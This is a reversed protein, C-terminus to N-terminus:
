RRPDAGLRPDGLDPERARPFQRGPYDGHVVTLRPAVPVHARLWQFTWALIAHPRLSWREIREQWHDIQRLAANERSAGEGLCSIPARTWDLDHLVCLIDTFEAAIRGREREPRKGMEWLLPTRGEMKESVIFPAGLIGFDDSYWLARPALIASGELSRLALYEPEATYPAMTGRPSGIRLILPPASAAEFGVEYTLWSFGAPFRRLSKVASAEAGCRELFASLRAAIVREDDVFETVAEPLESTSAVAAM